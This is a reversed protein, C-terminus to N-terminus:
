GKEDGSLVESPQTWRELLDKLESLKLPKSIYDDMGSELCKQRDGMMANATLAIIPLRTEGLDSESGRIARTAAFGDMEPMQCDMLVLDYKIRKYAEVAQLGNSAVDAQFGLKELFRVAVMQNVDNDEAVLVRTRKRAKAEKLNHTTVLPDDSGASSAANKQPTGMVTTLCDYLQSERVPKTLYGAVGVKRAGEAHGRLGTSTMLILRVTQIARDAKIARALNLGDKDAILINQIALDYPRGLAVAERLMELAQASDKAEDCQMGWSLGPEILLGHNSGSEDVILARLGRLDERPIPLAVSHRSPKDLRATFWFTSGKGPESEVGIEGGMLEALQKCIALGLGTGGFKRSISTEAQSFSQFLKARGEPSIGIGTDVVEFRIVVTESTEEVLKAQLFIEGKETFKVANGLLNTLIQRIRGPDGHLASPVDHYMLSAIELGKAHARTALQDTVEEVATRLDFYIDELTMKGADIKSLDLIDNIIDLLAEGSRQVREVYQRQEPTLDTELLLETMGIVGNMPTRIEHSMNALFESKARTAEAIKQNLSTLSTNSELLQQQSERLARYAEDRQIQNLYGKSHHRIRAILEIKDPIKVLYDNAGQVFAQSKTLPDDKTSLVIIPTDRTALNSRFQRVLTLGDIEPMILDQLIVMPKIQNALGIALAADPCYHLDIDAENSLYRRIAEAVIVQDDVLLVM